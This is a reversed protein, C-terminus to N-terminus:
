LFSVFTVATRLLIGLLSYVRIEASDSAFLASFHLHVTVANQHEARISISTKCAILANYLFSLLCEVFITRATGSASEQIACEVQMLFQFFFQCFENVFICRHAERRTERDILADNRCQKAFVIINDTVVAVVCTNDVAATKRKGLLKVILVVVHLIQLAHQLFQRLFGHFQNHDITDERHFTVKAIEGCDNLQLMLVVTRNHDVLSVADTDEALLSTAHAVMEPQGVLNIQDHSSERLRQCGDTSENSGIEIGDVPKAMCTTGIDEACRIRRGCRSGSHFGQVDDLLFGLANLTQPINGAISQLAEAFFSELNAIGLAGDDREIHAIDVLCEQHRRKGVIGAHEDIGDNRRGTSRLIGEHTECQHSGM